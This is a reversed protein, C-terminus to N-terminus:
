GGVLPVLRVFTVDSTPTLRLEVDLDEIQVGDVIVFFGNREFARLAFSAADEASRICREVEWSRSAVLPTRGEGTGDERTGRDFEERVRETILTQLTLPVGTRWDLVLSLEPPLANVQDRIVIAM